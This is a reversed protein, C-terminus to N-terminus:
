GGEAASEWLVSLETLQDPSPEPSPRITCPLLGSEACPPTRIASPVYVPLAPGTDGLPASM